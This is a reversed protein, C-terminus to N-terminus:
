IKVQVVLYPATRHMLTLMIIKKFNNIIINRIDYAAHYSTM